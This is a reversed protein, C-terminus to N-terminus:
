VFYSLIITTGNYKINVVYMEGDKKKNVTVAKHLSKPPSINVKGGDKMVQLDILINGLTVNLVESVSEQALEFLEDDEMEGYVFAKAIDFALKNTTSMGVTGNIDNTLSIFVTDDHYDIKDVELIEYTTDLGNSLGLDDRFYTITRDSLKELIEKYYSM